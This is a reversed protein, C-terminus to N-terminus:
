SIFSKGPFDNPLNFFSAVSKAIDSFTDGTGIEEQIARGKPFVLLPVFERSHDTSKSCPDNGHDGTIILLDQERIKSIIAPVARDFEKLSGAYGEPDLRHGFLQDTDILNVFVLSNEINSSMLGLLESIGEANSKTTHSYTFGMGAFLDAVKGVSHTEVGADQLKNVLNNEPPVSSYDHRQDSIREFHGVEGRFPRAIVRGVEHEGVCVKNRAIECWEYLKEISVVDTHCAVQFVSDASTYVIPEGTNLHEEGFDRIVDTGSYPQNCLVGKVGIEECFSAIVEEPFGNPYTPFPRDMQIGSIEWHGTTSDKGASVERLKGYAALPTKNLPVSALPIINGIGMKQLNPLEVGTEESVHGLTNMDSDGYDDADEQAGVGLGDIVILYVNGM